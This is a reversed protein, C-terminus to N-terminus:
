SAIGICRDDTELAHLLATEDPTTGARRVIVCTIGEALIRDVIESSNKSFADRVDFVNTIGAERALTTEIATYHSLARANDMPPTGDLRLIVFGSHRVGPRAEWAAAKEAEELLACIEWKALSQFRKPVKGRTKKAKPEPEPTQDPEKANDKDEGGSPEVEPAPTQQNRLSELWSNSM